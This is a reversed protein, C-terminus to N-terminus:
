AGPIVGRWAQGARYVASRGEGTVEYENTRWDEERCEVLGDERLRKLDQYLESDARRGDVGGIREHLEAGPMAGEVVLTLLIDRQRASLGKWRDPLQSDM